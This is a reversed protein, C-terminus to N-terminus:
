SYYSSMFNRLTRFLLPGVKSLDQRLSSSSLPPSLQCAQLKHNRKGRARLYLAFCPESFGPCGLILGLIVHNTGGSSLNKQAIWLRGSPWGFSKYACPIEWTEKICFRLGLFHWKPLWFRKNHVWYNASQYYQQSIKAEMRTVGLAESSGALQQSTCGSVPATHAHMLLYSAPLHCDYYRLSLNIIVWFHSM